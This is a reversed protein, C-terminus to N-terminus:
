GNTDSLAEAAARYRRDLQLTARAAVAQADGLADFRGMERGLDIMGLLDGMSALLRAALERSAGAMRLLLVFGGQDADVLHDWAADDPIAALEALAAALFSLDGEQAASELLAEDIQGAEALASVLSAAVREISKDEDRRDILGAAAASLARDSDRPDVRAALRARDAAAVAYALQEATAASLDDFEVRPQGLRDRRRGRALILAMAAASVTEEDRAILAQLFSSPPSSRARVAIAIREEDARRLLIALLDSHHLLGACGLQRVLQQGDGDNAVGWASPLAARIEDAISGLLDALMATM